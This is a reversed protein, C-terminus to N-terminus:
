REEINKRPAGGNPTSPIILRILKKKEGRREKLAKLIKKGVKQNGMGLATREIWELSMQKGKGATMGLKAGPGKGEVVIINNEEDEYVQDFGIGKQYGLIMKAHPYNKLMYQTANLEGVKETINRKITRVKKFNVGKVRNLEWRLDERDEDLGDVLDDLHKSFIDNDEEDHISFQKKLYYSDEPRKKKKIKARQLVPAAVAGSKNERPKEVRASMQLSKTGMKDAENELSPSDNIAIEALKATPQVRGQKQQVLHWAEHPLHREQGPAIHIQTGQTYALAQMQAPRPSNFHVRVDDLSLGSLSEVGSKLPDPLGTHNPILKRSDDGTAPPAAKRQLVTEAGAENGTRDLFDIGYAPPTLAIGDPGASAQQGASPATAQPTKQPHTARQM